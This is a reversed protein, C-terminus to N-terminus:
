GDVSLFVSPCSAFTVAQNSVLNDLKLFRISLLNVM